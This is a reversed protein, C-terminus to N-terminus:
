FFKASRTLNVVVAQHLAMEKEMLSRLMVRKSVRKPEYTAGEAVKRAASLARRGIWCGGDIPDLSPASVVIAQESL